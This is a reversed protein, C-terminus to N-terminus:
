SRFLRSYQREHKSSSIALAPLGAGIDSDGVQGAQECAAMLHPHLALMVQQAQTQGFPVLKTAAAIQNELWAWVFGLCTAHLGVKWHSAALAFMAAFTPHPVRSAADVELSVLLRQLALGLQDDELLLERTERSARLYQNWYTVQADDQAQWARYLRMLVPVDLTAVSHELVGAVWQSVDDQTKLWGNDIAYELGQSYAYAGVPLAPSVLYMLKLLAPDTIM